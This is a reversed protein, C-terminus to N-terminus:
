TGFASIGITVPASSNTIVMVRPRNKNTKNFSAVGLAIEGLDVSEAEIEEEDGYDGGPCEGTGGAMGLEDDDDTPMKFGLELRMAKYCAYAEEKNCFIFDSLMMINLIDNKSAEYIYEAAFNFGVIYNNKSAYNIMKRLAECNCDIFFGTTYFLRCNKAEDLGLTESMHTTPYLECADLVGICTRDAKVVTVACQGSISNKEEHVFHM